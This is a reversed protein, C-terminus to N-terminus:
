DSIQFLMNFALLFILLILKSCDIKIVQINSKIKAYEYHYKLLQSNYCLVWGGMKDGGRGEYQLFTSVLLRSSFCCSLLVVFFETVIGMDMKVVPYIHLVSSIKFDQNTSM